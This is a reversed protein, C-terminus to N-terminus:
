NEDSTAATRLLCFYPLLFDILLLMVEPLKLGESMFFLDKSQRKHSVLLSHYTSIIRRM